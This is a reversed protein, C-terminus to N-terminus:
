LGKVKFWLNFSIKHNRENKRLKQINEIDSSIKVLYLIILINELYIIKQREFNM